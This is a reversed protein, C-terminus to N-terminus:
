TIMDTELRLGIHLQIRKQQQGEKRAKFLVAVVELAFAGVAGCLFRVHEVGNDHEYIVEALVISRREGLDGVEGCVALDREVREEREEDRAGDGWTGELRGRGRLPSKPRGRM